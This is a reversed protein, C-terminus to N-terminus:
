PDLDNHSIQVAARGQCVFMAGHIQTSWYTRVQAGMRVADVLVHGIGPDSKQKPVDKNPM